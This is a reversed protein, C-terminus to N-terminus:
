SHCLVWASASCRNLDACRAISIRSSRLRDERRTRGPSGRRELRCRAHAGAATRALHWRVRLVGRGARCRDYHVRRTVVYRVATRTRGPTATRSRRMTPAARSSCKMRFTPKVQDAASRGRGGDLLVDGPPQARQRLVRLIRARLSCRRAGQSISLPRAPSRYPYRPEREGGLACGSGVWGGSVCNTIYVGRTRLVGPYVAAMSLPTIEERCRM